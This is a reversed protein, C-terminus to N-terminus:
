SGFWDNAYKPRNERIWPVSALTLTQGDMGTTDSGVHHVYSRSLFHKYGKASLDQCHVDDSYWNLPPFKSQRWAARSIIGFIPSIVEM